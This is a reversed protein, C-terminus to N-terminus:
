KLSIKNASERMKSSVPEVYIQTTSIHRHILMEKVVFIETGLAHQITAFSRRFCHFTIHKKIGASKVWKKLPTQTMSRQLGKFLGTGREGCITLTEDSIPLAAEVQTKQSRICIGMKGDPLERINEWKLQLIDSIRLGTLCSFISASKLVPIECPTNYLIKVEELTLYEERVDETDIRDLYENVNELIMKNRHSIKLLGRFTSYYGAASNKSITLQPRKLQKANLLYERFDQCLKVNVEAFTCKNNVFTCFHIYVFKWKQNKKALMKKYYALFDGNYKEKDFFDYRENVIAEFRRCRIAEAKKLMSENFNREAKNKPSAYIYIGLSEHRRVKMTEKDRIGPYYDLYLSLMNNKIAKSRLTVTKCEFM